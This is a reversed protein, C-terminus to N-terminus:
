LRSLRPLSPPLHAGHGEMWQESQDLGRTQGRIIPLHGDAATLVASTLRYVGASRDNDQTDPCPSVAEDLLGGDLRLGAQRPWLVGHDGGGGPRDPVRASGVAAAVALMLGTPQNRQRGGRPEGGCDPGSCIAVRFVFCTFNPPPPSASQCRSRAAHPPYSTALLSGSRPSCSSECPHGPPAARGAAASPM